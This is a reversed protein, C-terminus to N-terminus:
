LLTTTGKPKHKCKIRLVTKYIDIVQAQVPATTIICRLPTQSPCSELLGSAWHLHGVPYPKHMFSGNLTSSIYSFLNDNRRNNINVLQYTCVWLLCLM